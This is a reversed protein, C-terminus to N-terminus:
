PGDCATMAGYTMYGVRVPVRVRNAATGPWGFSRLCTAAAGGFEIEYEGPGVEMFGGRGDDATTANLETDANGEEDAYFGVVTEDVLDFTVGGMRPSTAAAVVVGGTWPYSTMTMASLDEGLEDSFMPWTTQFDVIAIGPILYPVHGEIEVTYSTEEGAPLMLVAKGEANTTVCSEPAGVECVEVGELPPGGFAESLPYGLAVTATVRNAVMGGGSGGTGGMGGTGATGGIGGSGATGGAGGEGTAEDGCGVTPVLVMACVCVWSM